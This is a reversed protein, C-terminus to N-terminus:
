GSFRFPPLQQCSFQSTVAEQSELVDYVHSEKNLMKVNHMSRNDRIM